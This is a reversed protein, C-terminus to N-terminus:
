PQVRSLPGEEKPFNSTNLVQIGANHEGNFPTVTDSCGAKAADEPSDFWLGLHFTHVPGTQPNTAADPIPKDHIVPAVDSGPAVIFTERNFRGVFDGQGQGYADTELDGQYWSLGFPFDPVQIVFLDFKTDPPLGSVEVYMTEVPGLSTITVQGKADPLCTQAGQSPVMAFTFNSYTPEDTPAAMSRGPALNVLSLAVALVVSWFPRQRRPTRTRIPPCVPPHLSQEGHRQHPQSHVTSTGSDEPDDDVNHTRRGLPFTSLRPLMMPNLYLAAKCDFLRQHSRQVEQGLHYAYYTERFDASGNQPVAPSSASASHIPSLTSTAMATM